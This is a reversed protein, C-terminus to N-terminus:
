RFQPKVNKFKKIRGNPLIVFSDALYTSPPYTVEFRKVEEESLFFLVSFTHEVIENKDRSTLNPWHRVMNAQILAVAVPSYKQLKGMRKIITKRAPFSLTDIKVKILYSKALGTKDFTASGWLFGQLFDVEYIEDNGGSYQKWIVSDCVSVLKHFSAAVIEPVPVQTKQETRATYTQCVAFRAFGILILLLMRQM